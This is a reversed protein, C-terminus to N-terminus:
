KTLPNQLGAEIKEGFNCFFTLFQASVKEPLKTSFNSANKGSNRAGSNFDLLAM